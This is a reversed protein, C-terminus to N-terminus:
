NTFTLVQPVTQFERTCDQGCQNCTGDIYMAALLRFLAYSAAFVPNFSLIFRVATYYTYLSELIGLLVAMVTGTFLWLTDEKVALITKSLEFQVTKWYVESLRVVTPRKHQRIVLFRPNDPQLDRNM